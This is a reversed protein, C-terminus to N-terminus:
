IYILWWTDVHIHISPSSYYLRRYAFGVSACKREVLPAHFDVGRSRCRCSVLAALQVRMSRSRLRSRVTSSLDGRRGVVVVHVHLAVEQQAAKLIAVAVLVIVPM